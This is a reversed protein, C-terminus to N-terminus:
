RGPPTATPQSNRRMIFDKIGQLIGGSEQTGYMWPLQVTSTTIVEKAQIRGRGEEGVSLDKQNIFFSEVVDLNFGMEAYARCLSTLAIQEKTLVGMETKDVFSQLTKEHAVDANLLSKDATTATQPTVTDPRIGNGM